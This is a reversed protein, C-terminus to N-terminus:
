NGSQRMKWLMQRLMGTLTQNDETSLGLGRVFRRIRQESKASRTKLYGSAQLTEVLTATLRNLESSKARVRKYPKASQKANRALEYLCLAVAQGLNM